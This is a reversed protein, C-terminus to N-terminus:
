LAASALRVGGRSPLDPAVGRDTRAEGDNRGRKRGMLPSRAVATLGLGTPAARMSRRAPRNERVVDPYRRTAQRRRPVISPASASCRRLWRRWSNPLAAIGRPPNLPRFGAFLGPAPPPPIDPPSVGR